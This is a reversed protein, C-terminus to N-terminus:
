GVALPSEVKLDWIFVYAHDRNCADLMQVSEGDMLLEIMVHPVRAPVMAVFQVGDELIRVDVPITLGHGTGVFRLCWFHQGHLAEEIVRLRALSMNLRSELVSM